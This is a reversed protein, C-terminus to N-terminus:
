AQGNHQHQQQHILQNWQIPPIRSDEESVDHPQFRRFDLICKQILNYDPESTFDLKSLHDFATRLLNLKMVDKSIALPKPLPPLKPLNRHQQQPQYHQDATKKESDSDHFSRLICEREHKVTHYESGKLLEEIRNDHQSSTTGYHNEQAGM